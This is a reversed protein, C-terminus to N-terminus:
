SDAPLEIWGLSRCEQCRVRGTGHRMRGTGECRPCDTCNSNRVPLLAILEPYREAGAVLFMTRLPEAAPSVAGDESAELVEGEATLLAWAFWGEALPLANHTRATQAFAEGSAGDAVRNILQRITDAMNAQVPLSTM